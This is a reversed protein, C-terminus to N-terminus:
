LFQCSPHIAEPIYDVGLAGWEDSETPLLTAISPFLICICLFLIIAVGITYTWVM